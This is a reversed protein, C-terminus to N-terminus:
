NTKSENTVKANGFAKNIESGLFKSYVTRGDANPHMADAFQDVSLTRSADIFVSGYEREFDKCTSEFENWITAYEPWVDPHIPVCVLVMKVNQAKAYELLERILSKGLRSDSIDSRIGSRTQAIHNMLRRDRITGLMEYPDIWNTPPTERLEKRVMKRAKDNMLNLPLNHFHMVQRQKTALLADRDAESYYKWATETWENSWSDVFGAFSYGFAKDINLENVEGVAQPALSLVIAKPKAAAIKPLMIRYESLGCGSISSNWITISDDCERNAIGADFGEGTVSNGLVIVNQKANAFPKDFLQSVARIRELEGLGFKPLIWYVHALYAVVVGLFIPIGLKLLALCLASASKISDSPTARDSSHVM